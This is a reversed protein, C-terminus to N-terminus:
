QQIRGPNIGAWTRYESAISDWFGHVSEPTVKKFGQFDMDEISRRVDNRIGNKMEKIEFDKDTDIRKGLVQEEMYLQSMYNPGSGEPVILQIPECNNRRCTAFLKEISHYPIVVFGIIEESNDTRVRALIKEVLKDSCQFKKNSYGIKEHSVHAFVVRSGEESVKKAIKLHDNNFPDFEGIIVKVKTKGRKKQIDRHTFALQLSSIAKM